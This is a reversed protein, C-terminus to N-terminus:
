VDLYKYAVIMLSTTFLFFVATGGFVLLPGAFWVFTKVAAFPGVIRAVAGVALIVGQASGQKELPLLKTYLAIVCARGMPFAISILIFGLLFQYVGVNKGPMSVLLMYGVFGILLSVTTLVRDSFYASAKGVFAFALLACVGAGTFLINSIM